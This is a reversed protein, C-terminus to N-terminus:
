AVERKRARRQRQYCAPCRGLRYGSGYRQGQSPVMYGCEQCALVLLRPRMGQRRRYDADYHPKCLGRATTPAGCVQCHHAAEWRAECQASCVYRTMRRGSVVVRWQRGVRACWRCVACTREITM